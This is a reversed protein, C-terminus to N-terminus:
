PRARLTLPVTTTGWHLQLVASDADVMPFEWQLTEVQEGRGPVAKVRLVDQGDPYRMHFATAQRNFIITWSTSDPIAWVSYSGAALVSGNVQLATSITVRTATDASPSWVRGWPVLAGFLERGRAVPRRYMIDVRTGGIMQSLSALQSKPTVQAGAPTVAVLTAVIAITFKKV